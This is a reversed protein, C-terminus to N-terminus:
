HLLKEYNHAFTRMHASDAFFSKLDRADALKAVRAVTPVNFNARQINASLLAPSWITGM